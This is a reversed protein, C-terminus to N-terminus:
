PAMRFEQVIITNEFGSGFESCFVLLLLGLLLLLSLLIKVSGVRLCTTLSHWDQLDSLALKSGLGLFLVSVVIVCSTVLILHHGSLDFLHILHVPSDHEVEM